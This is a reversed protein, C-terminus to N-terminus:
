PNARFPKRRTLLEYLIVGLSFIDSRGDVRHGEGRAQEPSMYAPTGAYRHDQGVSGERLALGFDVVYPKGARDLLINGPKIDRHVVALRHAHQLAEAVTAVLEAAQAVSPPDDKIKLALTGGEIYKSVVFFVCDETQGIDFVPVISPHDLRAATRAEALYALADSPRHVLTAHPVKIAVQRELQDDQALYVVGFGGQGIAKEVRYRGISKPLESSAAGGAMTEAMEQQWPGTQESHNRM